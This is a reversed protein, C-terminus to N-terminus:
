YLNWYPITEPTGGTMRLQDESLYRRDIAMRFLYTRLWDADLQVYGDAGRVTGFTNESVWYVIKEGEMKVGCMAMAHTSTVDRSDFRDAKSMESHVGLQADSPFLRSDYVGEDPLADRNTDCTFYFRDGARLSALALAELEECPLNLFTWEADDAASRSGEVRYMRHYPRRPDNMLM